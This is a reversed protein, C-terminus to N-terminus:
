HVARVSLLDLCFAGDGDDDDDGAAVVVYDAADDIM